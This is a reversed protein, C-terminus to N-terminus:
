LFGMVLAAGVIGAMAYSEAGAAGAVAGNVATSTRNSKSGAGSSPQAAGTVSTIMGRAASSDAPAATTRHDAAATSHSATKSESESESEGESASDAASGSASPLSASGTPPPATTHRVTPAKSPSTASWSFRLSDDAGPAAPTPTPTPAQPTPSPSDTFTTYRPSYTETGSYLPCGPKTTILPGARDGGCEIHECIEGTGPVYWLLSPFARPPDNPNIMITTSVCGTPTYGAGATVSALFATAFVFRLAM